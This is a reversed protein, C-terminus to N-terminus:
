TWGILATPLRTVGSSKQTMVGIERKQRHGRTTRSPDAGAVAM